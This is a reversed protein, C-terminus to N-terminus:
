VTQYIGWTTISPQKTSGGHLLVLSNPLDGVYYFWATQYIPQNVNYLALYYALICTNCQKINVIFDEWKTDSKNNDAQLRISLIGCIM